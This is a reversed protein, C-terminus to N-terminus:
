LKYNGYDTVMPTVSTGVRTDYMYENSGVLSNYMKNIGADFMGRAIQTGEPNERFLNMHMLAGATIINDYDSPIDTLDGHLVMDNPVKYYRYKVTYEKDPSPTVGFGTGHTRFVFDPASVGVNGADDDILKLTKYWQDRDISKLNRSRIELADDKIIQFSEWDVSKFNVPWAYENIGTSLTITHEVAQYPWEWKQQNIEKIADLVVDKALTQVGRTSAFNTETLEVENIRRLLRNTLSLFTSGSM